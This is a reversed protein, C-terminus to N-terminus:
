EVFLSKLYGILEENYTMTIEKSGDNIKVYNKDFFEMTFKRSFQKRVTSYGHRTYEVVVAEELEQIKCSFDPPFFVTTILVSIPISVFACGILIISIFPKGIALADIITCLIALSAFLMAVWITLRFAEMRIFTRTKM